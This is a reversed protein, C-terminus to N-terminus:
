RGKAATSEIVEMLRPLLTQMSFNGAVSVADQRNRVSSAIQLELTSIANVIQAPEGHRATACPLEGQLQGLIKSIHSPAPGVYLIPANVQLLNYAKCPHVLGVFPDGM